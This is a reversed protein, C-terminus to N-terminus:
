WKGWAGDPRTINESATGEDAPAQTPGTPNPRRADWGDGRADVLAAGRRRRLPEPEHHRAGADRRACRFFGPVVSPAGPSSSKSSSQTPLGGAIKGSEM